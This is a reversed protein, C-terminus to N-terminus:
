IMSMLISLTTLIDIRGWSIQLSITIGQSVQVGVLLLHSGKKVGHAFTLEFADCVWVYSRFHYLEQFFVYSSVKVTM